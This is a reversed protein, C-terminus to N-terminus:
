RADFRYLLDASSICPSTDHLVRLHIFSISDTIRSSLSSQLIKSARHMCSTQHLKALIQLSSSASFSPEPNPSNNEFGSILFHLSLPNTDGSSPNRFHRALDSRLYKYGGVVPMVRRRQETAEWTRWM